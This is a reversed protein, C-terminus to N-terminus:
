VLSFSPKHEVYELLIDEPGRVFVAVTNPADVVRDIDLGRALAERQADEASDVLLALHNLLPRTTHQPGGPRVIVFRDGLSLEEPGGNFGLGLLAGATGTPDSVALVSAHLDVPGERQVLGFPVGAPGDFRVADHDLRDYSINRTDLRAVCGALDPVRIVIRELVGRERPGDADFLTIKGLRADGGILTFSDTREIEHMGCVEVIALALDARETVWLAVHDFANPRM